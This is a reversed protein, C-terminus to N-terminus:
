TTRRRVLEVPITVNSVKEGAILAVLAKATAEALEPMHRNVTTFGGYVYKSLPSDDCGVVKVDGPVNKGSDSLAALVGPVFRDAMCFIGDVDNAADLLRMTYEYGAEYSISTCNFVLKEELAIGGQELAQRYGEYRLNINDPIRNYQLTGIRRCGSDILEKTALYGVQLSDNCVIAENERLDKRGCDVFVTPAPPRNDTPPVVVRIWGSLNLANQLRNCEMEVDGITATNLLLPIYSYRYLAQQLEMSFYTFFEGMMDPILIGVIPSTGVRLGRAIPSPSYGVQAIVRQVREATKKSVYGSKNIVRSVTSPAVGSAAAIEQISYQKKEM